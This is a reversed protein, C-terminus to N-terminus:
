FLLEIYIPELSISMFYGFAMTIVHFYENCEMSGHLKVFKEKKEM